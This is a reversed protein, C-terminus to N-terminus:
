SVELGLGLLFERISEASPAPGSTLFQDVKQTIAEWEEDSANSASFIISSGDPTEIGSTKLVPPEPILKYFLGDEYHEDTVTNWYGIDGHEDQAAEAAEKAQEMTFGDFALRSGDAYQAVIRYPLFAAHEAYKEM